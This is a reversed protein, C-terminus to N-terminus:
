GQEVQNRGQSKARYLAEDARKFWTDVNASHLQAVGFSCTVSCLRSLLEHEISARLHEAFIAAGTMDTNRCVVVFEEGGWRALVDQERIKSSVLATLNILVKDGEDHGYTDNIRKFLDIDFMVLSAPQSHTSFQSILESLVSSLGARNFVKTLPDTKAMSEFKDREISLFNNIRDLEAAKTKSSLYKKRLSITLFISHGIISTIWIFLLGLYLDQAAIWKGIFTFSYLKIDVNKLQYSDGTAIQLYKVQDMKANTDIGYPKSFIWWSPVYFRNMALTYESRGSSPNITQLNARTQGIASEAPTANQESNLLYVLITDRQPNHVVMDLVISHFKRLDPYQDPQQSLPILMSCFPFTASQATQCNLHANDQNITLTALSKGGNIDDNLTSVKLSQNVPVHLYHNMGLQQWLMLSLTVLVLLPYYIEQRLIRM